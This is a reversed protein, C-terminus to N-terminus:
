LNLYYDKLLEIFENTDKGNEEKIILESNKIKSEKDSFLLIARFFNHNPTQKILFKEKLFFKNEEALAILYDLRSFPILVAFHGDEKLLNKSCLILERFSLSAAHKAVNKRNEVSLLDDEYFPPNSIILDYKEKPIFNKIDANLVQLREHWKSNLFNQKAQRYTEADIEIADIAAKDNKQAYMLALLGTGTGIDLCNDNKLKQDSIWAGFVCADTCVKMSCKDQEIRFDKFQFYTNPM